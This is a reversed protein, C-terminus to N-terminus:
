LGIATLGPGIGGYWVSGLVAGYATLYPLERGWVTSLAWRLALGALAAGVAIGYRLM